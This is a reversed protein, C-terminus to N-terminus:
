SARARLWDFIRVLNLTDEACYRLLAQRLRAREESPTDPAIMRLYGLSAHGGDAIELSSYDAVAGLLAPAVLKLSYRGRMERNAVWRRGFPEALDQMRRVVAHLPSRRAPLFDALERCIREEFAQNYVAISGEAGLAALMAEGLRGRPDAGDEALFEAHVPAAGPRDVRHVSFQFPMQQFPKLGDHPPIAPGATELDLYYLPYTFDRLFDAVQRREFRLGGNRALEVQIRQASSLPDDLPIHELARVGDNWYVWAKGRDRTLEFVSYDPLGKWCHGQYECEYPDHCHPGIAVPPAAPEQVVALLEGVSRAVEAGTGALERTLAEVEFLQALDLEGSRVYGTDLHVISAKGVQLGAGELVWKQVALDDLHPEKLSGSMKVEYLDWRGARPSRRELIDVRVLVGGHQFTAEYITTAGNAIAAQTSAPARELQTHDEEILMGGPFLQRALEGVRAGEDLLHELTPDAEPQDAGHAYLWLRKPCQRGMLYRSKSLRSRM